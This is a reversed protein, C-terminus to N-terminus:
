HCLVMEQPGHLVFSSTTKSENSSSSSTTSSSSAIRLQIPNQFSNELWQHRLQTHFPMMLFFEHIDGSLLFQIVLPLHSHKPIGLLCTKKSSNVLPNVIQKIFKIICKMKCLVTTTKQQNHKVNPFFLPQFSLQKEILTQGHEHVNSFQLLGDSQLQLTMIGSGVSLNVFITLLDLSVFPIFFYDNRSAITKVNNPKPSQNVFFPKLIPKSSVVDTFVANNCDTITLRIAEPYAKLASALRNLEESAINIWASGEHRCVPIHAYMASSQFHDIVSIEMKDGGNTRITILSGVDKMSTIAKRLALISSTPIIIVIISM